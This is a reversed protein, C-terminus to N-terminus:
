KISRFERLVEIVGKINRKFEEVAAAPIWDERRISSGVVSM